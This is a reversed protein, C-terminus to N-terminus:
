YYLHKLYSKTLHRMFYLSVKKIESSYTKDMMGAQRNIEKFCHCAIFWERLSGCCFEDRFMSLFVGGHRGLEFGNREFMRSHIEDFAQNRLAAKKKRSEHSIGSEVVRYNLLICPLNVIMAYDSFMSWFCYDEIASGRYRELYKIRGKRVIETRFMMSGNALVNHFFLHVKVSKDTYAGTEPKGLVKGDESILQYEGGVAGIGPNHDLFIVEEELRYKPAVDDADMLATYETNCADLGRNRTYVQGRNESNFLVRVRDDMKAYKEIIEKSKDTSGDDIVLLKFERYTQGLISEIAEAIHKEANYCPMIVTVRVKREM